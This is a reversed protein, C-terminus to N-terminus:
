ISDWGIYLFFWVQKQKIDVLTTLIKELATTFEIKHKIVSLVASSIWIKM